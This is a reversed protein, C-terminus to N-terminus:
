IYWVHILIHASYVQQSISNSFKLLIHQQINLLCYTQMPKFLPKASDDARGYDSSSMIRTVRGLQTLEM